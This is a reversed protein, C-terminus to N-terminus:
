PRGSPDKAREKPLTKEIVKDNPVDHPGDEDPTPPVKGAMSEAQPSEAKEVPDTRNQDRPETPSM